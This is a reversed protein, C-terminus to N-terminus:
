RYQYSIFFKTYRRHNLPNESENRLALTLIKKFIKQRPGLRSKSFEFSAPLGGISRSGLSEKFSDM